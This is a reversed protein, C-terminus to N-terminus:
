REDQEKNHRNDCGNKCKKSDRESYKSPQFFMPCELIPYV